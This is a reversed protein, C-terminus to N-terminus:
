AAPQEAAFRVLRGIALRDDEGEIQFSLGAERGHLRAVRVGINIVQEGVCISLEGVTWISVPADFRVLM